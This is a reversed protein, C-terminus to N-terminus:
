REFTARVSRVLPDRDFTRAAAIVYIDYFDKMRSTLVGISVMAELKEAIVAELPYALVRTAELDLLPEITLTTPAPYVADGFGMDIQLVVRASGLTVSVKIRM